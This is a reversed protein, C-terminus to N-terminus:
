HGESTSLHIIKLVGRAISERELQDALKRMAAIWDRSADDSSSEDAPQPRQKEDEGLAEPLFPESPPESSGNM